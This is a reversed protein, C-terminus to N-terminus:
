KKSVDTDITFTHRRRGLCKYRRTLTKESMWRVGNVRAPSGCYPCVVKGNVHKTSSGYFHLDLRKILDKKNGSTPLGAAKCLDALESAKMERWGDPPTKAANPPDAPPTGTDGENENGESPNAPPTGADGQNKNEETPKTVETEM